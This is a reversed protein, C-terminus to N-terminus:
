GKKPRKKPALASGTGGLNELKLKLSMLTVGWLLTLFIHIAPGTIFAFCCTAVMVALAAVSLLIFIGALKAFTLINKGVLSFARGVSETFPLNDMAYYVWLLVLLFQVFAFLMIFAGFLAILPLLSAIFPSIDASSNIALLEPYAFAIGIPVAMFLVFLAVWFALIVTAKVSHREMRMSWDPSPKRKALLCYFHEYVYFWTAQGMISIAIAFLVVIVALALLFAGLGLLYADIGGIANAFLSGPAGESSYSDGRGSNSFSSGGFGGAGSLLLLVVLPILVEQWHDRILLYSEEITKTVSVNGM